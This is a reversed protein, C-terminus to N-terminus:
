GLRGGKSEQWHCEDQGQGLQLQNIVERLRKIEAELTDIRDKANMLAMWVMSGPGDACASEEIAADLEKMDSM